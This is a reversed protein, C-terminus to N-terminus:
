ELEALFNTALFGPAARTYQTHVYLIHHMYKCMHMSDHVHKYSLLILVCPTMSNFVAEAPWKM